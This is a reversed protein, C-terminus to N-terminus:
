ILPEHAQQARFHDLHATDNFSRLRLRGDNFVILRNVSTNDAGLFAFPESGTAQRCLEAIVGGHVVAVASGPGVMSVVHDFGRRVREGFAENSEAGPIIDWRQELFSRVILPDRQAIRARYEGAEWDGLHVERLDPVVTPELGKLAVLPAATQVTRQLSTVFIAKIPEDALRKGVFEAQTHGEPALPPDGHGEANLAFPEGEIAAASSGHRVLVIETADPPLEFLRQPHGAPRPPPVDSSTV